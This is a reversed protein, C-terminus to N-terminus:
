PLRHHILWFGDRFFFLLMMCICFVMSPVLWFVLSLREFKLHMFYSMILAAKILSLGILVTLMIDPRVREYALLVEIGTIAVLLVWVIVNTKTSAGQHTEIADAESSM